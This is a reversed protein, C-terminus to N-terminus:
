RSTVTSVLEAMVSQNSQRRHIQAAAYMDVALLAPTRGGAWARIVQGTDRDPDGISRGTRVLYGALLLAAQDARSLAQCRHGGHPDKIAAKILCTMVDDSIMFLGLDAMELLLGASRAILNAPSLPGRTPRRQRPVIPFPTV